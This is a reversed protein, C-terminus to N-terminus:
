FHRQLQIFGLNKGRGYDSGEGGSFFQAGGSLTLNDDISYSFTPSIFRSGDSLNFLFYASTKFLSTIWYQRPPANKEQRFDATRLYNGARIETDHEIKVQLRSPVEYSLKLRLRNISLTYAEAAMGDTRSNILLAKAYGAVQVLDPVSAPAVAAESLNYALQLPGGFSRAAASGLAFLFWLLVLGARRIAYSPRHKMLGLEPM